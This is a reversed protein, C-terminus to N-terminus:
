SQPAKSLAKEARAKADDFKGAMLLLNGAQIQADTSDASLDAAMIANRLANPGDGRSVYTTALKEYAPAFKPDRQIANRYEIIAADLNNAKAYKDGREIYERKAQEASRTCASVAVVCLWVSVLSTKRM